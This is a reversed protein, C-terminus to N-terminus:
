RTKILYMTKLKLAQSLWQLLNLHLKWQLNELQRRACGKLGVWDQARFLGSYGLHAEGPSGTVRGAHGAGTGAPGVMVDKQSCLEEMLLSFVLGVFRAWCEKNTHKTKLQFIINLDKFTFSIQKSHPRYSEDEMCNKSNWKFDNMWVCPIRLPVVSLLSCSALCWLCSNKIIWVATCVHVAKCTFKLDSLFLPTLNLFIM